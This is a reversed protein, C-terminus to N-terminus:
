SSAFSVRGCSHGQREAFREPPETTSDFGTRTRESPDQPHWDLRTIVRPIDDLLVTALNRGFGNRVVIRLVSM